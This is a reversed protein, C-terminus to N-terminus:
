RFIGTHGLSYRGPQPYVCLGHPGAGVKITHTLKGAVTDFVYVVGHYRGSLWLERGDASLGGMDPSGGGPIPWTAIPKQEKFSVVSVSGAGRNSVYLVRSDRSVYLGHAGAGTPMFRIVKFTAADVLWVGGRDMDAVYFTTGDPSLKVDQPMSAPGLAITKTVKRRRWDIVVLDGSFECSALFLSGDATFDAHNIGRCPVPMSHLLRMSRPDRFDLENNREAMVLAERGDPSFYLNYPDEVPVPRGPKGTKPDIPTLTNGRNNNVWLRKMDWSPVVHQPLRGTRFHDIVKYTKPDIVDVSDSESNPVYVRSPFGAVVPSLMGPRDAAYIDRKSAARKSDRPGSAADAASGSPSAHAPSPSVVGRGAAPSTTVDTPATGCGSLTTGTLTAGTLALAVTRITRATRARRSGPLTDPGTREGARWLPGAATM